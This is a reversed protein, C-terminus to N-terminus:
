PSDHCISSRCLNGGSKNLAEDNTRNILLWGSGSPEWREGCWCLGQEHEQIVLVREEGLLIIDEYSLM